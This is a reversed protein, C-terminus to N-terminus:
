GGHVEIRRPRAEERRPITLTLVGDQLNAAIKSTDLGPGLAFARSFHPDRIEVHQVSLSGPTPVVAEAELYLNGDRVKVDLKDKSVGPLDVLLTIGSNDEFIDVAPSLTTRRSTEEGQPQTVTNRKSEVVQTTDSM